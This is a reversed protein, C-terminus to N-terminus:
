SEKRDTGFVVLQKLEYQLFFTKSDTYTHINLFSIENLQMLRILM